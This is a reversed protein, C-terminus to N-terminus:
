WLLDPIEPTVSANTETTNVENNPSTSTNPPLINRSNNGKGYEGGDSDEVTVPVLSTVATQTENNDHNNENRFYSSLESRLQGIQQPEYSLVFNGAGIAALTDMYHSLLLIDMVDRNSYSNYFSSSSNSSSHSDPQKDDENLCVLLETQPAPRQQSLEKEALTQQLGQAIAQRQKAVGVGSLYSKEALAEAKKVMEIKHTEGQNAKVEKHRKNANIENMSAQILPDPTIETILPVEPLEYGFPIMCRQLRGHLEQVMDFSTSSSSEGTTAFLEDITMRPVSSRVIDLVYSKLFPHEPHRYAASYYNHRKLLQWSYHAKYPDRVVYMVAITMWVFVNDKTKSELTVNLQQLRTSVRNVIQSKGCLLWAPLCHLGPPLLTDFKGFQELIGVEQTRVCQVCCCGHSCIECYCIPYQIPSSSNPRSSNPAGTLTPPIMRQPHSQNYQTHQHQRRAKQRMSKLAAPALIEQQQPQNQSPSYGHNHPHVKNNSNNPTYVNNNNASPLLPLDEAPTGGLLSEMETNQQSPQQRQTRQRVNTKTMARTAPALPRTTTSSGTATLTTGQARSLLLLPEDEEFTNNNNNSNNHGVRRRNRNGPFAKMAMRSDM